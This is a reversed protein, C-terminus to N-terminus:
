WGHGQGRQPLRVMVGASQRDRSVSSYWPSIPVLFQRLQGILTSIVSRVVESTARSM